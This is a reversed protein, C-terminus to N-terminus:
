WPAPGGPRPRVQRAAPSGTGRRRPCACSADRCGRRPAASARRRCQLPRQRDAQRRLVRAGADAEVAAGDLGFGAPQADVEGLAPRPMRQKGIGEGLAQAGGLGLQAGFGARGTGTSKVAWLTGVRVTSGGVRFGCALRAKPGAAPRRDRRRLRAGCRRARRRVRGRSEASTTQRGSGPRWRRGTSRALRRLSGRSMAAAPTLASSRCGM